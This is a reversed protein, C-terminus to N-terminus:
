KLREYTKDFGEKSIEKVKDYAREWDKQTPVYNKSSDQVGMVLISTLLIKEGIKKILKKEM